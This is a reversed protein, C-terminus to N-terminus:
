HIKGQRLISILSIAMAIYYALSYDPVLRKMLFFSGILIAIWLIITLFGLKNTKINQFCGVIQAFGFVGIIFSVAFVAFYILFKM